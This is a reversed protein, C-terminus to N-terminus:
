YTLPVRTAPPPLTRASWAPIPYTWAGAYHLQLPPWEEPAVAFKWTGDYTRGCSMEPVDIAGVGDAGTIPARRGSTLELYIDPHGIDSTWGPLPNGERCEASVSFAVEIGSPRYTISRISTALGSARTPVADVLVPGSVRHAVPPAASPGSFRPVATSPPRATSYVSVRATLLGVNDDYLTDRDNMLLTLDFSSATLVAHTGVLTWTSSGSRAILAAVNAGPLTLDIDWPAPADGDADYCVPEDAAQWGTCWEGLAAIEVVDGPVIGEIFAGLHASIDGEASARMAPIAIVLGPPLTACDLGNAIALVEVPIGFQRAISLCSDGTLTRYEGAGIPPPIPTQGPTAAPEGGDAGGPGLAAGLAALGGIALAAVMGGAALMGRRRARSDASPSAELSRGPVGGSEGLWRRNAPERALLAELAPRAELPVRSLDPSERLHAILVEQPTRGAFPPSGTLAEYLVIGLAYLDSAPTTVPDPAMYAPTGVMGGTGTMATLDVARAVGFDALKPGAPSLLINSPKLDRHVIGARHVAGLGAAIGNAIPLLESWSLRGRRIRERLSEGEALEMVMFPLGERVGYGLVRVVNPSDVRSGLEVEHEFRRVCEPDDALHPHLLKLAVERATTSECARWVTGMGGAGLREILDFAGTM